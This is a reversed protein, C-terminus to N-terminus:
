SSRLTRGSSTRTRSRTSSSGTSTAVTARIDELRRTPGMFYGHDVALMVSNGSPPRFMRAFRNRMGWDM